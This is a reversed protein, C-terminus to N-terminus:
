KSVVVGLLNSRAIQLSDRASLLEESTTQGIKVIIVTADVHSTLVLSDTTVNVASSVILVIDYHQKATAITQKFCDSGLLAPPDTPPAGASLLHLEKVSTKQIINSLLLSKNKCLETLGQNNELGFLKHLQPKRLDGDILLVKQGGRVAAIGLNAMIESTTVDVESSTFLVSKLPADNNMMYLSTRLDSYDTFQHSRSRQSRVNTVLTGRKSAHVEDIIPLNSVNAIARSNYLRTDLNEMVLAVMLGASASLILALALNLMTNSSNSKRPLTASEVIVPPVANIEQTVRANEYQELLSIWSEERVRLVREAAIIREDASGFQEVLEQYQNRAEDVDNELENAANLLIDASARSSPTQLTEVEDIFIRTLENAIDTAYQPDRDTASIRILETDVIADVRINPLRDVELADRLRNLIPDSTAIYTFTKMLRDNYFLNIAVYDQSGLPATPIRVTASSTYTPISRRERFLVVAVALVVFIILVFKRRWLIAVYDQFTM